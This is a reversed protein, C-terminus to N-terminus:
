SDTYARARSRIGSVPLTLAAMTSHTRLCLALLAESTWSWHPYRRLSMQLPFDDTSHPPILYGHSGGPRRSARSSSVPRGQIGGWGVRSKRSRHDEITVTVLPSPAFVTIRGSMATMESGWVELWPAPLSM